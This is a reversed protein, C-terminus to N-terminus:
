APLDLDAAQQDFEPDPETTPNEDFDAPEAGQSAAWRAIQRPENEDLGATMHDFRYLEEGESEAQRGQSFGSLLRKLEPSGCQECVLHEAAAGAAAMSLRFLTNKRGCRSCKYEYIPM